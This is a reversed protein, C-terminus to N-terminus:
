SLLTHHSLLPTHSPLPSSHTIPISSHPSIDGWPTYTLHTSSPHLYPLFLPPNYTLHPPSLLPTYILGTCKELPHEPSLLPPTYTLHPPSFLPSSPHQYPSSIHPPSLLPAPLILLLPHTYTIHPSTFLLPPTISM